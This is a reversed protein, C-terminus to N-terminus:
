KLNNIQFPKAAPQHIHCLLFNVSKPRFKKPRRKLKFSLFSSLSSFTLSFITLNRLTVNIWSIHGNCIELSPTIKRAGLPAPAATPSNETAQLVLESWSPQWGCLNAAVGVDVGAGAGVGADAGADVGAGCVGVDDTQVVNCHQIKKKEERERAAQM